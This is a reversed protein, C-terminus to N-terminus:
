IDGELLAEELLVNVSSDNKKSPTKKVDLKEELTSPDVLDYLQDDEMSEISKSKVLDQKDLCAITGCDVPPVPVLYFNYLWAGMVVIFSAAAAFRARKAFLSIVKTEKNTNVKENTSVKEFIEMESKEFYNEPVHFSNQKELANLKTFFDESDGLVSALNGGELEEFYNAPVSFANTNKLKSLGPYDILELEQEKQSFYDEPVLFGNENKLQTLRPLVKHEEQWEIKNMISGVSKQFYGEPLGFNGAQENSQNNENEEKVEIKYINNSSM